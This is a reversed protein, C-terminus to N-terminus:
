PQEAHHKESENSHLLAQSVRISGPWYTSHGPRFGGPYHKVEVQDRGLASQLALWAALQRRASGETLAYTHALEGIKDDSAIAVWLLLRTEENSMSKEERQKAGCRLPGQIMAAPTTEHALLPLSPAFDGGGPSSAARM